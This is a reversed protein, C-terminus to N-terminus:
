GTEDSGCWLGGALYAIGGYREALHKTTFGSLAFLKRWPADYDAFTTCYPRQRWQVWPNLVVLPGRFFKGGALAFRAGPKAVTTLANLAADSQLVDHTFMLLFANIQGPAVQASMAEVESDIFQINGLHQSRARAKAQQMMARCPEVALVVGSPSVAESLAALSKGTGCGVDMVVDGPTLRLLQHADRRIPELRPTLEDYREALATYQHNSRALDASFDLLQM